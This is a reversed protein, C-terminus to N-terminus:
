PKGDGTLTFYGSRREAQFQFKSFAKFERFDRPDGAALVQKRSWSTVFSRDEFAGLYDIGPNTRAITQLLLLTAQRSDEIRGQLEAYYREGIPGQPLEWGTKILVGRQGLGEISLGVGPYRGGIQKVASHVRTHLDHGAVQVSPMSAAGQKSAVVRDGALDGLWTTLGYIAGYTALGTVAVIMSYRLLGLRRSGCRRRSRLTLGIALGGLGLGALKFAWRWEPYLSDAVDIAVAASTIGTLAAVAPGVCCGIGVVGAILGAVVGRPSPGAKDHIM